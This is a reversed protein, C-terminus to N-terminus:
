FETECDHESSSNVKNSKRKKSAENNKKLTEENKKKLKEREREELKKKLDITKEISSLIANYCTTLITVVGVILTITSCTIEVAGM